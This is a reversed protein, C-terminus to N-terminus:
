RRMFSFMGRPYEGSAEVFNGLEKFFQFSSTILVVHSIRFLLTFSHYPIRILFYDFVDFTKLLIVVSVSPTLPGPFWHFCRSYM